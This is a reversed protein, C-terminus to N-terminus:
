DNIPEEDSLPLNAAEKFRKGNSPWLAYASAGLFIVVFYVMGWTQAFSSLTEYTM